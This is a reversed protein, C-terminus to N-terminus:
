FLYSVGISFQGQVMASGFNRVCFGLEAFIGWHRELYFEFGPLAAFNFGPSTTRPALALSFGTPLAVYATADYSGLRLPYMAKALLDFDLITTTRTGFNFISNLVGGLSFYKMIPIELGISPGMMGGYNGFHLIPKIHIQRAQSLHKLPGNNQATPIEAFGASALIGLWFLVLLTRM